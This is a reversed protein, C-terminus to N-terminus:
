IAFAEIWDDDDGGSPEDEDDDLKAGPVLSTEILQILKSICLQNMSAGMEEAEAALAKHISAPLRVTIMHTPEHVRHESKGKRASKEAKRRLRALMQQIERYAPTAKFLELSRTDPFLRKVIGQRGMIKRFFTAWDPAREYIHTAAALVQRAKTAVESELRKDILRQKDM